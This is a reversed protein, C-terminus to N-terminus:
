WEVRDGKWDFFGGSDTATLGDMVRCLHDAAQDPPLAAHGGRFGETLSTEVTGPHLAVVVAQPHSRAIEIAACNATLAM